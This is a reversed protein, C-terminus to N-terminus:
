CEVEGMNRVGEEASGDTWIEIDATPLGALTEFAAQKQKEAADRKTINRCLYDRADYNLDHKWPPAPNITNIGDKQLNKLGMRESERKGEERWSSQTQLNRLRRQPTKASEKRPNDDPLRASKEYAVVCLEKARLKMPMLNAEMQLAEIPSAKHAGTIIRAAQNQIKEADELHTDAAGPAWASVGYEIAARIYCLYLLRLEEKQAGWTKGALKSLAQIRPFCKAKLKKVHPGFNLLRDFQVGLFVPNDNFPVVQGQLTLSPRKTTAEKNHTTFLTTECKNVNITMKNKEVWRGVANLRKQLLKEADDVNEDTVWLALDDAFLSAEVGEPLEGTIDDIFIAFLTPSICSGQPVGQHFKRFNSKSGNVHVRAYRDELMSSIWRCSCVPVGKEMMKELLGPKWVTDFARSFDVLTLLTRGAKRPRNFGDAIAQTIRLLQDETSRNARFAAQLPNLKNESDLWNNLRRKVITEMLKAIVSTLSVPRFSSIQDSPKGPKLIPKIWARKWTTPVHGSRWSISFLKRLTEKGTESMHVLMENSVEDLGCSKKMPLSKIAQSFEM